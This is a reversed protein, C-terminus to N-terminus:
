FRLFERFDDEIQSHPASADITLILADASLVAGALTGERNEETLSRKQTLLANATRGDCDFLVVPESPEGFPSFRIAYPVIEEQTERQRDEYVRHRLEALGNSKDVLHGHLVREQTESAQSLAGLLSSKGADPMGFLVLRLAAPDIAAPRVPPPS